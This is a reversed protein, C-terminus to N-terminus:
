QHNRGQDIFFPRVSNGGDVTAGNGVVDMTAGGTKSIPLIDAPTLGGLNINSGPQIQIVDSRTPNDYASQLASLFSAQDTVLLLDATASSAGSFFATALLFQRTFKRPKGLIWLDLM